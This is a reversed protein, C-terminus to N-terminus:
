AVEPVCLRSPTTGGHRLTITTVREAEATFESAPRGDGPNVAYAPFSAGAISLRLAFGAPVTACAARMPVEIEGGADCRRHGATLTWARGDPAVTSLTASLDFSPQDAEAHLVAHVRGCLFLPANLMEGTYCLVDARDDLAARDQIGPQPGASGGLSPIPRWPDHVFTDSGATGPARRLAGDTSTAAALGGSGPFLNLMRTEPWDPFDRWARAGVDFLTIAAGADGDRDKLHRDFWAVQTQDVPSAAGPGLDVAGVRRGWPSHTWPGVLLRQEATGQAAFAAHGDLTGMLM